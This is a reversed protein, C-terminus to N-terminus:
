LFHLYIALTGMDISSNVNSIQSLSKYVPIKKEGELFVSSITYDPMKYTGLEVKNFKIM